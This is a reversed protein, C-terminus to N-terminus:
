NLRLPDDQMKELLMGKLLVMYGIIDHIADEFSEGEVFLRGQDLFSRIRQMKDQVRILLGREPAVGELESLRFNAFPDASIGTYDANKKRLTAAIDEFTADVIAEYEAKTM